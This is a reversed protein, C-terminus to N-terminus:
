DLACRNAEETDGWVTMAPGETRLYLPRPGPVGKLEVSGANRTSSGADLTLDRTTATVLV